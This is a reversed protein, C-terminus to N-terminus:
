NRSVVFMAEAITTSVLPEIFKAPAPSDVTACAKLGAFAPSFGRAVDAFGRAVATMSEGTVM